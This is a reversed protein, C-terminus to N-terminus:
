RRVSLRFRQSGQRLIAGERTVSELVPGESLQEGERYRRGNIIVFRKGPDTSHIHIDLNLPPIGRRAGASLTELSPVSEPASAFSVSGPTLPPRPSEERRERSPRPVTSPSPESIAPKDVPEKRPTAPAPATPPATTTVATSRTSTIPQAPTRVTVPSEDRASTEKPPPLSHSAPPKSPTSTVTPPPSAPTVPPAAPQNRMLFFALLAANLGLGLGVGVRLWPGLRRRGTEAALPPAALTPPQGLHREREAKRLADLIYSM